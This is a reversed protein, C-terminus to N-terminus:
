SGQRQMFTITITLTIKPIKFGCIEISSGYNCFFKEREKSFWLKDSVNIHLTLVTKSISETGWIKKCFFVSAAHFKSLALGFLTGTANM